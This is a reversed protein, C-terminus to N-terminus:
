RVLATITEASAEAEGPRVASAGGEITVIETGAEDAVMARTRSGGGDVGVVISSV